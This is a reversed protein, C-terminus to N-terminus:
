VCVSCWQENYNAELIEGEVKAPASLFVKAPTPPSGSPFKPLGIRFEEFFHGVALLYPRLNEGMKVTTARGQGVHHEAITIALM